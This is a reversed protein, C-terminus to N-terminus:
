QAPAPSTPELSGGGFGYSVSVGLGAKGQESAWRGFVNLHVVKYQALIPIEKAFDHGAAVYPEITAGNGPWATVAGVQVAMIGKPDTYIPVSMGAISQKLIADYGVLAETASLPLGITGIPTKWAMDAFAEETAWIAAMIAVFIIILPLRLKM